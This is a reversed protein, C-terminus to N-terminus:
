MSRRWRWIAEARGSPRLLSHDLLAEWRALRRPNWTRGLLRDLGAIISAGEHLLQPSTFGVRQMNTEVLRRERSLDARHVDRERHKEGDYEHIRRTSAVWLDARAVFNGWEDYIKKQPEVDVGAVVHL